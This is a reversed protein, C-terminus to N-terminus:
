PASPLSAESITFFMPLTLGPGSTSHQKLFEELRASQESTIIQEEVADQLDKKTIKM